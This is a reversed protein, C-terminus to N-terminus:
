ELRITKPQRALSAIAVAFAIISLLYGIIVLDRYFNESEWQAIAYDAEDQTEVVSFTYSNVKIGNSTIKATWTGTQNLKQSILITRAEEAGLAFPIRQVIRNGVSLKVDGVQPTSVTNALVISFNAVHDLVDVSAETSYVHATITSSLGTNGAPRFGGSLGSLFIFGLLTGAVVLM